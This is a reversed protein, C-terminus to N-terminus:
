KVNKKGGQIEHLTKNIQTLAYEISKWDTM